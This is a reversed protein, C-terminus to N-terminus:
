GERQGQSIAFTKYVQQKRNKPCTQSRVSLTISNDQLHSQHKDAHLFYVEDNM